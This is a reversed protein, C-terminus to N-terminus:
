RKGKMVPGKDLWPYPYKPVEMNKPTASNSLKDIWPRVMNYIKNKIDAEPIGKSMVKTETATKATQAEMLQLEKVQREMALKQQLVGAASAGLGEFGKMVNEAHAVPMQAAAGPPTSAGGNIALMPNLGAARLDAVERQHASNSMREQFQMQERVNRNSWAGAESAAEKNAANAAQGGFFSLGSGIVQAGGAIVAATTVPDM